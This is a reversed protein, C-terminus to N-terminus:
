KEAPAEIKDIVLVPEPALQSELKLGLQEQVAALFRPATSELSSVFPQFRPPGSPVASSSAPADPTWQLTFDFRDSLGTRDIVQRDFFRGSGIPLGLHTPLSRALFAMTVGGGALRGHTSSIGCAPREGTAAPPPPNGSASRARVAEPSCDTQSRTMQPGLSGDPRALVLAYVPFEREARHAVLKFREAMFAQLNKSEQQRPVDPPVNAVIDFRDSRAWFPLNDVDSVAFASILLERVTVNTAVLRGDFLRMSAPPKRTISVDGSTVVSAAAGAAPAQPMARAVGIPAIGLIAIAGMVMLGTARRHGIRGRTQGNDLVAAVRAALDDRGAMALLPRRTGVAERQAISVLLSAYDRADDERVVADDCAREAELRLRRWAAWVLPHFWYAACVIRSLCHTLFDWRAVHELEHRLACRLTAADWQQASAPLIIVPKLVGCTMPGTVADHLAADVWRHLGLAPALTQVLAQGDTWPLASERLRRVQWFGVLVPMLFLAVGILWTATVVQAITVSWARATGRSVSSPGSAAADAGASSPVASVRDQTRHAPATAQAGFRSARLHGAAPVTVAVPPLVTGAGPIAILATFALAFLLHRISARTRRCLRSLFFAVGVVLTAKVIVVVAFSMM